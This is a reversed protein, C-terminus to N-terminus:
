KRNEQLPFLEDIIVQSDPRPIEIDRKEISKSGFLMIDIKKGDWIIKEVVSKIMRRKTEVDMMEWASNNLTMLSETVLQINIDNFEVVKEAEQMDKLRKKLEEKEKGLNQLRSVLMNLVDEPQGKEIATFVNEIGIEVESIKNQIVEIETQIGDKTNEVFTKRSYVQDLIPSNQSAIYKLEKLVSYDLNNGNINKMNCLTRRSKEKKECMYYFVQEGNATNRQATRPRMFSGCCACRLVGSLLSQTSKVKRFTKSKNQEILNQAEIWIHSPIIGEHMGVAVIWESNDRIRVSNKEKDQKTKNYGNLGNIGNFEDISSCVTYDNKTLYEYTLRDAVAYVPNTLIFRLAFVGFDIGNKTYIKNQVLYKELKTLSKFTVYKEYILKVIDLEEQIPVLKFMKKQKGTPDVSVVAESKFGTPTMGGLWRGTKALQMMNDKIREAITERELQSFVSAIYMMARGMPTTTDFQERLSIFDVNYANLEKILQSFDSVNRSIRDLRYCILVDFKKERANKLMKQFQPRKTNGGSFGEDEYIAFDEESVGLYKIAHEKCLQVQNEVSEGKGTFKSKRSYIAIKM